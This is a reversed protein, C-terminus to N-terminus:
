VQASLYLLMEELDLCAGCLLFYLMLNQQQTHAHKMRAATLKLVFPQQSAPRVWQDQHCKQHPGDVSTPRMTGFICGAAKFTSPVHVQDKFLVPHWLGPQKDHFNMSDESEPM